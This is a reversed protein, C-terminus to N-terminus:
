AESFTEVLALRNALIEADNFLASPPLLVVLDLFHLAALQQRCADAPGYIGVASAFEPSIAALAGDTDGAAFRERALRAETEFGYTGWIPYYQELSLNGLISRKMGRLAAAPDPDVYCPVLAALSIGARDRGAARLGELVAPVATDQLYRSPLYSAFEVGDAIRGALRNMQVGITGLWIPPVKEIPRGGRPFGRIRFHEGEYSFTQGPPTELAGRVIQVYEKMRGVPRDFPMGWWNENWPRPGPGLGLTFRGGSYDTLLATSNATITPPRYWIAVGSALGVSKTAGAFATLLAFVDGGGDSVWLSHLGADEVARAVRIQDALPQRGGLM